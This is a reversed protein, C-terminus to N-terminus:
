NVFSCIGFYHVYSFPQLCIPQRREDVEPCGVSTSATVTRPKTPKTPKTLKEQSQSTRIANTRLNEDTDAFIVGVM